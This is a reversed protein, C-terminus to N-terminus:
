MSNKMVKPLRFVQSNGVRVSKKGSIKMLVYAMKTADSRNPKDYGLYNLVATASMELSRDQSEWDFAALVKETFPDVQEHQINSENLEALESDSLTFDTGAKWLEAVEAWVQQIDIGHNWDISEVSITWWRRNGTDDILFKSANVTAIYVTRRALRMSKRAWAARAEDYSNTVHSKIPAIDAKRFTGDLEGLEVIWYGALDIINDKNTPDLRAGGKVAGCGIPDLRKIWETKGIRQAGELVLVGQSAFGHISHAAEMASLMWKRVLMHSFADNTTHLTSIFQNLRTIGDWPREKLCRLIPHYQDELSILGLYEDVRTTPLSNYEALSIIRNLDSNQQNDSDIINKPILIERKRTMLNYSIKIGLKETLFKLNEWTNVPKTFTDNLQPYHTKELRTISNEAIPPAKDKIWETQRGCVALITRPLYDEREWKDRKLKSQFMLRRIRECDNGTWFALHQALASDASSRNYVDQDNPPYATALAPEDADWLEAFSVGGGFAARASKSQLARRLLDTDDTPGNWEACPESTWQQQAPRTAAVPNSFYNDVLWQVQPTFDLRASGSAHTGTLAVFRGAHYLELKHEANRCGHQPVTGSAIIHLGKGSSSVEVYAGPFANLLSIALPSWTGDAQLCDDIDLFWFPDQETFVFGVGYSPGLRTATATATAKDTWIAPDHANAVNGTRHDIPLKDNKGPRNKSPTLIFVIFQKLLEM